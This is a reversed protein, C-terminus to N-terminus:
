SISRKKSLSRWRLPPSRGQSLQPPFSEERLREHATAAGGQKVDDPKPKCRAKLGRINLDEVSLADAKRVIKNAVFWQYATRKDIHKKHLRAVKQAEKKRNASGKKKRSLRRQRIKLTRKGKKSTSPRPNVRTLDMQAIFL